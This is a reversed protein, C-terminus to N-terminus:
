TEVRKEKTVGNMADALNEYNTESGSKGLKELVALSHSVLAAVDCARAPWGPRAHSIRWDPMKIKSAAEDFKNRLRNINM